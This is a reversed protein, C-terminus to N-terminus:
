GMFLFCSVGLTYKNIKLAFIELTAYYLKTLLNFRSKKITCFFTTDQLQCNTILLRIIDVNVLKGAPRGAIFREFIIIEIQPPGSQCYM